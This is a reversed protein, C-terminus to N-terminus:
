SYLHYILCGTNDNLKLKPLSNDFAGSEISEIKNFSLDLESLDRLGTFAGRPIHMLNNRALNLFEMETLGQFADSDLAIVGSGTIELRKLSSFTSSLSRPLFLVTQQHIIVQNPSAETGNQNKVTAIRTSPNSIVLNTIECVESGLYSYSGHSVPKINCVVDILLKKTFQSSLQIIASAPLNSAELQRIKKQM